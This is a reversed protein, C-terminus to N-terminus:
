NNVLYYTCSTYVVYIDRKCVRRLDDIVELCNVHEPTKEIVTEESFSDFYNAIDVLSPDSTRQSDILKLGSSHGTFIKSLLKTEYLIKTDPLGCLFSLLLTSGSRPSGLVFILKKNIM